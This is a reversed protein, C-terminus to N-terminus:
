QPRGSQFLRKSPRLDPPNLELVLITIIVAFVADSFANLRDPNAEQRTMETGKPSTNRETAAAAM